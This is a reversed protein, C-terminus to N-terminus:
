VDNHKVFKGYGSQTKDLHDDVAQEASKPFKGYSKGERFFRTSGTSGKHPNILARGLIDKGHYEGHENPVADHHVHIAIMSGHEIHGSMKVWAVPNDNNPNACSTWPTGVSCSAVQGPKNSIVVKGPKGSTRKQHNQYEDQIDKPAKSRALYKSITVSRGTHLEVDTGKVKAGNSEIHHSVSHPLDDNFSLEHTGMRGLIQHHLDDIGPARQKDIVKHTEGHGIADYLDQTSEKLFDKFSLYKKM